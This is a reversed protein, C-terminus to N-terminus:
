FVMSALVLRYFHLKCFTSNGIPSPTKNRSILKTENQVPLPQQPRQQGNVVHQQQQRAQQQQQQQQQQSPRREKNQKVKKEDQETSFVCGM